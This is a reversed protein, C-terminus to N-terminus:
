TRMHCHYPFLGAHDAFSLLVRVREGRMVLVTDKWGKDVFGNKVTAYSRAFRGAVSHGIVRFQLRHVHMSHAMVMGMMGNSADNRFKWVEHTGPKAIGLNSAGLTDFVQGNIGWTMM